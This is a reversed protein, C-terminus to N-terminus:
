ILFVYIFIYFYLRTCLPYLSLHGLWVERLVGFFIFIVDLGRSGELDVLSRGGRRRGGGGVFFVFVVMLQLLGMACQSQFSDFFIFGEATTWRGPVRGLGVLEQVQARRRRSAGGRSSRGLDLRGRDAVGIGQKAGKSLFALVLMVQGPRPLALGPSRYLDGRGRWQRRLPVGGPRPLPRSVNNGQAASVMAKGVDGSFALRPPVGERSVRAGGFDVAPSCLGPCSLYGIWGTGGGCTIGLGSDNVDLGGDHVGAVGGFVGFGGVLVGACRPSIILLHLPSVEKM